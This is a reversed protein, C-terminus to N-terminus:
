GVSFIIPTEFLSLNSTNYCLPTFRLTRETDDPFAAAVNGPAGLVGCSSTMNATWGGAHLLFELLRGTLDGTCWHAHRHVGDPRELDMVFQDQKGCM